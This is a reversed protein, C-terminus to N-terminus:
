SHTIGIALLIELVLEQFKQVFLVYM